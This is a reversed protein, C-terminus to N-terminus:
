GHKKSARELVALVRAREGDALPQAGPMGGAYLLEARVAFVSEIEAGLEGDAGLWRQVVGADAAAESRGAAVAAEVQLLRGAAQYFHARGTEERVTRWLQEREKRLAAAPTQGGRRQFWRWGLLGLLGTLAAAQLIWFLGSRYAPGFSKRLAGPEYKIGLIDAAKAPAPTAAPKAGEPRPPAPTAPAPADGTVVLPAAESRLTVYKGAEPDFYSFQFEPMGTKKAEPVVAVEFSKVGSYGLADEAKFEEKPPYARWGAPEALVPASARDFSGKGSVRLKMTLPDGIKVERPSGEASFAFQGVAGSFDRPRGAQPLPKVDLEVAPATVSREQMAEFLGGPNLLFEEFPDGSRAGRARPVSATFDIVSPGLTIKGAKGPSLLTRFVIVRYDRGGRRTREERPRGFPQMTVGAGELVPLKELNIRTQEGVLLRLEVPISEGVYLATKPVTIEALEAADAAAPAEARVTLKLAETRLMGSDARVEVPPIVYEGPRRARLSYHLEISQNLRGNVYETRQESGRYRMEVGEIEPPEPADLRRVGSVNISYEIVDNAAAVDSSLSASARGEAHAAGAGCLWIAVLVVLRVSVLRM